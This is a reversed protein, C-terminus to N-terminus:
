FPLLTLFAVFLSTRHMFCLTILIPASFSAHYLTLAGDRRRNQRRAIRRTRARAPVYRSGAIRRRPECTSTRRGANPRVPRRRPPGDPRLADPARTRRDAPRLPRHRKRDGPAAVHRRADPRADLRRSPPATVVASLDLRALGYTFTANDFTGSYLEVQGDADLDTAFALDANPFRTQAGLGGTGGRFIVLDTGGTNQDRITGALDLVGDGNLDVLQLSRLDSSVVTQREPAGFSGAGLSGASATNRLVVLEQQTFDDSAYAGKGVLDAKGDGDVDGMADLFLSGTFQVSDVAFSSASLDSAGTNRMTVVLPGAAGFRTYALDVRGDGDFDADWLAVDSQSFLRSNYPWSAQKGFRLAGPGSLNEMAVIEGRRLVVILEDRGDGNLDVANMGAPASEFELQVGPAFALTDGNSRNLSITILGSEDRRFLAVAIDLRGDGDFDHRMTSQRFDSQYNAAVYGQATAPEGWGNGNALAPYVLVNTIQDLRMLDLKGDGNMDAVDWRNGYSANTNRTSLVTDRAAIGDPNFPYTQTRSVRVLPGDAASGGSAVRVRGAIVGRPVRVTLQTASQATVEGEVLGVFAKADAAFGTGDVTISEGAVVSSPSVASITVGADAAGTSFPVGSSWPGAMLGATARVRAFLSAGAPLRRLTLSGDASGGVRVIGTSDFAASTNVEVEYRIAEAVNTWSFTASAGTASATLTPATLSPTGAIWDVTAAEGEQGRGNIARVSLHVRNNPRAQVPPVVFSTDSTVYRAAYDAAFSNRTEVTVAYRQAARVSTWRAAIPGSRTPTPNGAEPTLITPRPLNADDFTAFRIFRASAGERGGQTSYMRLQYTTAGTILPSTLVTSTVSGGRVTDSLIPFFDFVGVSNPVPIGRELLLTYGDAGAVANWEIRIGADFAIGTQGSTPSTITPAAINPPPAQTTIAIGPTEAGAIVGVRARVSWTYTRSGQLNTVKFTDALSFRQTFSQPNSAITVDYGTAGAVPTWSFRVGRYPVDTGAMPRIQTPADPQAVPDLAGLTLDSTNFPVVVGQPYGPPQALFSQSGNRPSDVFAVARAGRADGARLLPNGVSAPTSATLSGDTSAYKRVGVSFTYVSGADVSLALTNFGNEEDTNGAWRFAGAASISGLFAKSANTRRLTVETPKSPDLAVGWFDNSSTLGGGLYLDGSADVTLADPMDGGVTPAFRWTEAGSSADHRVLTYGSRGTIDLASLVYVSGGGAAVLTGRISPVVYEVSGDAISLAVLSPQTVAVSDATLDLDSGGSVSLYLRQGDSAFPQGVVLLQSDSTLAQQGGWELAGTAGDFRATFGAAGANPGALGRGVILTAASPDLDMTAGTSLLGQIAVDGDPLVAILTKPAGSEAGVFSLAVFKHAWTLTGAADYRAVFTAGNPSTTKLAALAATASLALSDDFTGTVYFSGDAALQIDTIGVGGGELAAIPVPYQAYAPTALVLLGLLVSLRRM